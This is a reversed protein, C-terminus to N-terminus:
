RLTKVVTTTKEVAKKIHTVFILSRYFWKGLYKIHPKQVVKINDLNFANNEWIKNKGTLTVAKFCGKNKAGDDM